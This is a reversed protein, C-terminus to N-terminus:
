SITCSCGCSKSNSSKGINDMEFMNREHLRMKMDQDELTKGMSLRDDYDQAAAKRDLPALKSGKGMGEMMDRYAMVERRVKARAADEMRQLRIDEKSRRAKERERTEILHKQSTMLEQCKRIIELERSPVASSASRTSTMSGKRTSPWDQKEPTVVAPAVDKDESSDDGEDKSGTLAGITYGVFSTIKGTWGEDEESDNTYDKSESGDSTSGSCSTKGAEQIADFFYIDDEDINVSENEEMQKMWLAVSSNKSYRSLVSKSTKATKWSMNRWDDDATKWSTNKEEDDDATKWSLSKDDELNVSSHIDEVNEEEKELMSDITLDHSTDVMTSRNSPRQTNDEHGAWCDIENRNSESESGYDNDSIDVVLSPPPSRRPPKTNSLKEFFGASQFSKNSVDRAKEQNNDVEVQVNGFVRNGDNQDRSIKATVEEGEEYGNSYGNQYQELSTRSDNPTSDQHQRSSEAKEMRSSKARQKAERERRRESPLRYAPSEQRRSSRKPSDQPNRQHYNKNKSTTPHTDQRVKKKKLVLVRKGEATRNHNANSTPRKPSEEFTSSSHVSLTATEITSTSRSAKRSLVPVPDDFRDSDGARDSDSVYTNREMVMRIAEAPTLAPLDDQKQLDLPYKQTPSSLSSRSQRVVFLNNTSGEQPNYYVSRPHVANSISNKRTQPYLDTQPKVTKKSLSKNREESKLPAVVPINLDFDDDYEDSSDDDEDGYQNIRQVDNQARWIAPDTRHAVKIQRTPSNHARWVAPDNRHTAKM